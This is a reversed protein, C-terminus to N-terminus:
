FIKKATYNELYQQFDFANFSIETIATMTEGTLCSADRMAINKEEHFV